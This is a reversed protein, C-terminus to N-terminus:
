STVGLAAMAAILAGTASEVDEAAKMLAADDPDAEDRLHPFASEWHLADADIAEYTELADALMIIAPAAKARDPRDMAMHLAAHGEHVMASPALIVASM